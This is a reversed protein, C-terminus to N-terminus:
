YRHERRHHTGTTLTIRSNDSVLRRQLVGDQLETSRNTSITTDLLNVASELAHLADPLDVHARTIDVERNLELSACWTMLVQNSRENSCARGFSPDTGLGRARAPRLLPDHRASKRRSSRAPLDQASM